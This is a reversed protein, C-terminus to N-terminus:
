SKILKIWAVTILAIVVQIIVLDYALEWVSDIAFRVEGGTIYIFVAITALGALVIAFAILVCSTLLHKM